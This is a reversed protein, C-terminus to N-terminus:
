DESELEMKLVIITKALYIFSPASRRVVHLREVGKWSFYVPDLKYIDYKLILQQSSIHLYNKTVGYDAHGLLIRLTELSGGSMIYSTAFTHRLLHCHLRTIGTLKKLRQMITKVSNKKMQEYDVTVVVYNLDPLDSKYLDMMMELKKTLPVFRSKNFKSNRIIIYRGDFNVDDWKLNIVESLRMGCDLMLHIMIYNRKQIFESKNRLIVDDIKKVEKESLPIIIEQDPAPMKLNRLIDVDLYGSELLWRIFVKNARHYTRITTNKLGKLRQNQLYELYIKKTLEQDAVYNVFNLVNEEYFRITDKSCYTKKEKIFEQYADNLNMM